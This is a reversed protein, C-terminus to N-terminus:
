NKETKDLLDLIAQRILEPREWPIMHGQKPVRMMDVQAGTLMHEAFDANAKPVLGDTDGQIVIVPVHISAWLPMMKELEGHLPRIEDNALALINPVIWRVIPWRAAKQYWTTRELGPDISAAVLVLGAVQQAGDMAMRAAIPGGLSHGVVIAKRGPASQALVGLLMAAQRELSTELQGAGSNGFGPRDVSILHARTELQPDSLTNLADEWSGPSGHVLLVPPADAPGVEAAFIERDLVTYRHYTPPTRGAFIKALDPRPPACRLLGAALVVLTTLAVLSLRLWRRRPKPPRANSVESM